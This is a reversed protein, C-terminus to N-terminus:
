ATVSPHIFDGHYKIAAERYAQAAQEASDFYGLHSRKANVRMCARWKRNYDCWSVGKYGSTNNANKGINHRNSGNTSLRLNDIRNDSKVENRHDIQEDPWEGETILWALRHAKYSKSDIMIIWYGRGDLWGATTGAYRANWRKTHRDTEAVPKWKFRGTTRDYDLRAIAYDATITKNM